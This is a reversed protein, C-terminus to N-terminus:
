LEAARLVANRFREVMSGFPFLEWSTRLAGQELRSRETPELALLEQLRASLGAASGYRYLLSNEGDRLYAFEPMHKVPNDHTFVPLGYHLAHVASLGIAGPYVLATAIVFWPALRDEADEAGLWRVRDAVGLRAALQTWANLMSGEGVVILVADKGQSPLARLILDLRAKRELRGCFLLVKKGQVGLQRKLEPILDSSRLRAIFDRPGHGDSRLMKACASLIPTGDISNNLAATRCRPFGGGVLTELESDTYLMILDSVSSTLIRRGTAFLSKSGASHLHNWAVVKVGRARAQAVLPFHSLFRPNSNFVLVDGSRFGKPIVMRVQWFVRRGISRCAHWVHRFALGETLSVPCGPVAVSAHVEVEFECSRSLETFFPVRYNPIVPQQIFVRM